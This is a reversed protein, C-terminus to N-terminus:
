TALVLQAATSPTPPSARALLTQFNDKWRRVLGLRLIVKRGSRGLMAGVVFIKTRVTALTVSTDRLVDHKFASCLNFLAAILRLVTETAYFQRLCFGQAGFDSKFEKITNECEGRSDYTDCCKLPDDSLSTVLAHYEYSKIDFLQCKNETIRRMFLVRRPKNWYPLEVMEDAVEHVQDRRKWREEPIAAALRKLPKHMRVSVIYPLCAAELQKIFDESHFGSDARVLTIKFGEPLGALLEKLFDVPGQLTSSGGQRLWMHAIHKSKALMGLLPDHSVGGSRGKRYSQSVGEQHGYRALATSDLDLIDETQRQILLKGTQERAGEHIQESESRTLSEFYRRITDAGGVRAAGLATRIVEDGRMREVHAFRNGGTLVTAMLTKVIDVSSIRNPSEKKDPLIKELAEFLGVKAAFEYFLVLGGWGSLPKSTYEVGVEGGRISQM